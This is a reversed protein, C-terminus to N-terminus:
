DRKLEARMAGILEHVVRCLPSTEMEVLDALAVMDNNEIAVKVESLFKAIRALAERSSGVSRDAFDIKLAEIDIGTLLPVKALVQAVIQWLELMALVLAFAEKEKSANLLDGVQGAASTLKALHEDLASLTRDVLAVPEATTVSLLEYRAVPDEELQSYDDTALARGDLDVAVIVKGSRQVDLRVADM